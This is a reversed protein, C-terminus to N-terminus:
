FTMLTTCIHYSQVWEFMFSHLLLTMKNLRQQNTVHWSFMHWLQFRNVFLVPILKDKCLRKYASGRRDMPPLWDDVFLVGALSVLLPVPRGRRPSLSIWTVDRSCSQESACCSPQGCTGSRGAPNELFCLSNPPSPDFSAVARTQWWCTNKAQWCVTYDYFRAHTISYWWILVLTVSSCNTTFLM